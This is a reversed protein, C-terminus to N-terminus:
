KIEEVELNQLFKLYDQITEEYNLSMLKIVNVSQELINKLDNAYRLALDKDEFENELRQKVYFKEKIILIDFKNFIEKNQKKNRLGEYFDTGFYSSGNNGNFFIEFCRESGLWMELAIFALSWIDSKKLSNIGVRKNFSEFVRPSAYFDTIEKILCTGDGYNICATDFDTLVIREDKLSILINDPKIDGHGIGKKHLFKIINSLDKIWKFYTNIYSTKENFLRSFNGYSRMYKSLDTDYYETLIYGCDNKEKISLYCNIGEHVCEIGKSTKRSLIKFLERDKRFKEVKRSSNLDIVKLAYSKKGDNGELDLKYVIGYGGVGIASVVKYGKLRKMSTLTKVDNGVSLKCSNHM